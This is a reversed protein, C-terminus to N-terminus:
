ALLYQIIIGLLVVLGLLKRFTNVGKFLESLAWLVLAVTGINSIYNSSQQNTVFQAGIWCALWIIILANPKQAIVIEGDSTEFINKLNM